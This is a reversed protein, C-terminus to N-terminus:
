KGASNLEACRTCLPLNGTGRALNRDEINNGEICRTNNHHKTAVPRTSYWPGRTPM